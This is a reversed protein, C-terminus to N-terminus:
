DNSNSWPVYVKSGRNDTNRLIREKENGSIDSILTIVDGDDLPYHVTNGEVVMIVYPTRTEWDIHLRYQKDLFEIPSGDHYILTGPISISRM